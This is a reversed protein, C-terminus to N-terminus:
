FLAKVNDSKKYEEDKKNWEPIKSINNKANIKM